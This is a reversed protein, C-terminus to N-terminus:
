KVLSQRLADEYLHAGKYHRTEVSMEGLMDLLSKIAGPTNNWRAIPVMHTRITFLVHNTQPLKRLTQNEVRLYIQENFVDELRAKREGRYPTFLDDGLQLSWNMRTSIPGIKMNTFFRDMPTALRESYHPVPAHIATLPEGIKEALVWHAPFCVSAAVLCWDFDGGLGGNSRHNPALLLLDEPVLRGALDLPHLGETASLFVGSHYTKLHMKVMNLAESGAVESGSKSAFVRTHHNALLNAKLRIQWNRAVTDGFLDDAPLWEAEARSRLGLTLKYGLKQWPAQENTM